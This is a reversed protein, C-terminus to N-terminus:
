YRPGSATEKFFRQRYRLLLLLLVFQLFADPITSFQDFYFYLLNVVTLSFLFGFYGIMVARKEQNIFLLIAAVMIILAVSVQLAVQILYLYLTFDGKLIQANILNIFAKEVLQHNRLGIMQTPFVLHWVSWALMACVLFMRSRRKSLHKSEFKILADQFKTWKGPREPVLVVQDSIIFRHLDDALVKVAPDKSMKSTAKLRDSIRVMEVESLDQDLLEELDRLIYYFYTRADFKRKRRVLIYLLVTMLFIAYIIPAAAPYFYNNNQTIYKGVEDIFLGVGLGSLVASLYLIWENAYILPLLASIFLILGGWLVHAIHLDANGIQPYGTIYLTLRTLSVSVAFSILTIILYSEAHPQRIPSRVPGTSQPM